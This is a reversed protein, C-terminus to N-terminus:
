FADFPFFILVLFPFSVLLLAQLKRSRGKASVKLGKFDGRRWAQVIALFLLVGVLIKPALRVLKHPM